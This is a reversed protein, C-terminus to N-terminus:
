LLKLPELALLLAPVLEHGEHALDPRCENTAPVVGLHGFGELPHRAPLKLAEDDVHRRTM